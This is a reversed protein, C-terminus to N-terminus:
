EAHTDDDGGRHRFVVTSFPVPALVEYDPDAAVWERLRESHEAYHEPGSEVFWEEAKPTIEPLLSWERLMRNRSSFMEARVVSLPLDHNAEYFYRNLEDVDV